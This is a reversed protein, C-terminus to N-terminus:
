VNEEKSNRILMTILYWLFSALLSALFGFAFGIWREKWINSNQRQEQTKFIAEVVAKDSEVLKKLQKKETKLNEITDQNKRLNTKQYDIFQLLAKINKEINKLQNLQTEYQFDRLRRVEREEKVKKDSYYIVSIIIAMALFTAFITTKPKQIFLDFWLEAAIEMITKTGISM